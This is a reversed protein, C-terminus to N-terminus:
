ERDTFRKVFEQATKQYNENDWLDSLLVLIDLSRRAKLQTDGRSSKGLVDVASQLVRHKIDPTLPKADPKTDKGATVAEIVKDYV